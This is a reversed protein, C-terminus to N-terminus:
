ERLIPQGDARVGTQLSFWEGALYAERQEKYWLEKLIKAGTEKDGRAENLRRVETNLSKIDNTADVINRGMMGLVDTEYEIQVLIDHVGDWALYFRLSHYGYDIAFDGLRTSQAVSAMGKKLLVEQVKVLGADKMVGVHFDAILKTALLLDHKEKLEGGLEIYRAAKLLNDSTTVLSKFRKTLEIESKMASTLDAHITRLLKAARQLEASKSASLNGRSLVANIEKLRARSKDASNWLRVANNRHADIANRVPGAVGILLGVSTVLAGVQAVQSEEVHFELERKWTRGARLYESAVRWAERQRKLKSVGRERKKIEKNIAQRTPSPPKPRTPSAGFSPSWTPQHVTMGKVRFARAMDSARAYAEILSSALATPQLLVAFLFVAAVSLVRTRKM